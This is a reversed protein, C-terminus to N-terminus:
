MSFLGAFKEGAVGRNWAKDRIFTYWRMRTDLLSSFHIGAEAPIVWLPSSFGTSSGEPHLMKAPIAYAPHPHLGCQTEDHFSLTFPNRHSPQVM